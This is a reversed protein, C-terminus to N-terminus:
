TAKRCRLGYVRVPRVRGKVQIDGLDEIALEAADALENVTEATALVDYDPYEKTLAELRSAVNVVDGIVTYELREESGIVGAVVPGTSLGIGIRLETEGRQRRIQNLAALKRKMELAAQVARQANDPQTQPAGFIAVISDGGFKNVVGDHASVAATMTGLYENLWRVVDQPELPESLTTFGRIDSILVTVQRTEGGLELGSALLEEMVAPSVTRGFVERVFQGRRLGEVMENFSEALVGVEDSTRVEVSQDLNGTAVARSASVIRLLPRTIRRAVATGVLIVVLLAAAIFLVLQLQTIPSARVVFSRPLAVSFVALDARGRAELPGFVETYERGRATVNRPHIANEQEQIVQQWFDASIPQEEGAAYLTSALVQGDADFLTVHGASAQRLEVVLSGLSQGVAVIGTVEGDQKIPGAIYLAQGWPAPVLAAYKDGLSDAGALVKQVVTWDGFLDGGQSAEYDDLTGGLRHHLSLAAVGDVSVIEVYEAQDNVAIPLTLRRLTNADKQLVADAVGDTNATARLIALTQEEITVMGDAVLRGSEILQNAFREQLSDVVLQTVVYAGALSLLVALIVYPLTIKSRLGLRLWSTRSSTESSLSAEAHTM